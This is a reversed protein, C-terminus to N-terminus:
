GKKREKLREATWNMTNSGVTVSGSMSGDENLSGTFKLLPSGETTAFTLARDNLEGEFPIDRRDGHQNTPMAITGSIKAGEQRVVMAMPVVHDGEVGMTWTGTVDPAAASITAAISAALVLAPIWRLPTVTM